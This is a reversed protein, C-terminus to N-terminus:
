SEELARAIRARVEPVRGSKPLGLQGALERLAPGQMSDLDYVPAAAPAPEAVDLDLAYESGTAVKVWYEGRERDKGSAKKVGMIESFPVRLRAAAAARLDAQRPELAAAAEQEEERARRAAAGIAKTAEALEDVAM